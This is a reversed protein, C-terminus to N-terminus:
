GMLGMLAPIYHDVLLLSFIGMLYVISYGFTRMPLGPVPAFKLRWAYALFVLGLFLAGVGYLWGSMGYAFPLMSVAILLFTYLLVQTRTYELGHTVPLMPIDVKAYEEHREIALAWFHPPTWIFIILFLLLPEPDLTGTVAVWGLIPPAAGAAGGIVINQPTARKLYLTYVGAYGVLTAFTLWATLPNIWLYLVLMGLLGIVAAFRISQGRSLNGTVIPRGCTRAMRADVEADLLQNIAAASAAMLGIGLTAVLLVPLPVMGPTALFMGVVATFVILMVVRPKCLEYYDNLRQRWAPMLNLIESSM